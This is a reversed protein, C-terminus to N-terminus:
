EKIIKHRDILRENTHLELFYTGSSLMQIDIQDAYNGKEIIKGDMDRVMYHTIKLSPDAMVSIKEKFPVRIFYYWWFGLWMNKSWNLKLRARVLFIM